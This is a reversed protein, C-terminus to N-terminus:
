YGQLHGVQVQTAIQGKYGQEFQIPFMYEYGQQAHVFVVPRWLAFGFISMEPPAFSQCPAPM